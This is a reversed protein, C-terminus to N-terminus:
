IRTGDKWREQSSHTGSLVPLTRTSEQRAAYGAPRLATLAARVLAGYVHDTGHFAEVVKGLGPVVVEGLLWSRLEEDYLQAMFRLLIPLHDPLDNGPEFGRKRYEHNLKAMLAGRKYSDGFLHYGAYLCCSPNFDFTNAYIEELRQAPLSAIARRFEDLAALAESDDAELRSRLEECCVGLDAEPYDFARAFLRLADAGNQGSVGGPHTAASEGERGVQTRM